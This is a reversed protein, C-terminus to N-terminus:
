DPPRVTVKKVWSSYREIAKRDDDTLKGRCEVYRVNRSDDEVIRYKIGRDKELRDLIRGKFSLFAPSDSPIRSQDFDFKLTAADDSSKNNNDNNTKGDLRDLSNRRGLIFVHEFSLEKGDPSLRTRQEVKLLEIERDRLKSNAEEVTVCLIVERIDQYYRGFFETM